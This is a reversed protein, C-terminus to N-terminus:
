SCWQPPARVPAWRACAPVLLREQVLHSEVHLRGTVARCRDASDGVVRRAGREAEARYSSSAERGHGDVKSPSLRLGSSQKPRPAPRRPELHPLGLVIRAVDREALQVSQQVSPPPRSVEPGRDLLRLPSGQGRVRGPDLRSGTTANCGGRLALAGSDAADVLAGRAV